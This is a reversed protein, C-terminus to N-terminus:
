LTQYGIQSRRILNRKKMKKASNNANQTYPKPPFGLGSATDSNTSRVLGMLSYCSLVKEDVFNCM